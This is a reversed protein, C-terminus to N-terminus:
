HLLPPTLCGWSIGGKRNRGDGVKPSLEVAEAGLAAIGTTMVARGTSFDKRLGDNLARVTETNTTM